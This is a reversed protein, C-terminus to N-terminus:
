LRRMVEVGSVRAHAIAQRDEVEVARQGVRPGEEHAHEVLDGVLVTEPADVCRLGLLQAVVTRAVDHAM